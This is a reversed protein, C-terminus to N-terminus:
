PADGFRTGEPLPHGRLFTPADLVRGGARQLELPVLSGEGTQVCLGGSRVHVTGPAGGAAARDVDARLIRLPRGQWGTFAGPKPAFAHVRRALLAAPERWDLRARARDLKPAFTARTADQETFRVTGRAIAEVAEAIADATLPALRALLEGATERERIPTRRVLCVAGADMEREVRMVSVGTERDGALIAHAAPAAGRHRPLLSAHGNVLYGLTALERIRRPLFQGFAVVVGLDPRLARLAGEDDAVREPRLIPVGAEGARTAVPSPLTRRGRGRPRDPQSVVGVVPHRGGLLRELTPLAFDPTGFFV